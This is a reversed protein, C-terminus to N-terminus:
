EGQLDELLERITKNYIPHRYYPAITELPKLVFERKCMEIHPIILKEESIIEIDYTLIDIDLTRPGWHIIRERKAETEISGVLELLEMPTRLTHIELCGNLFDEQEINGYPETVIYESAKTVKTYKDENLKDIALDLYGEKDGINSGISLYATHWGRYITVSVTDIPLLIPAWPKKVEVEVSEIIQFNLLLHNAIEEAVTEILKHTTNEMLHKISHCVSGYDISKSLEDTKGAEKTNLFLKCSILFKQGLTNEEEFVGHHAFIELNSINIFDM